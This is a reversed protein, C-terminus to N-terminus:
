DLKKPMNTDQGLPQTQTVSCSHADNVLASHPYPTIHPEHPVPNYQQQGQMVEHGVVVVVVVVVLLVVVVVVVLVVVVVVTIHGDLIEKVLRLREVVDHDGPVLTVTDNPSLAFTAGLELLVRETERDKVTPPLVYLRVDKEVVQDAPLLVYEPETDKVTGFRFRLAPTYEAV